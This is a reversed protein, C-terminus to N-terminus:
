RNLFQVEKEKRKVENQQKIIILNQLNNSNSKNYQITTILITIVTPIYIYYLTYKYQLNYM